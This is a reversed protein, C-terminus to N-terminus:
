ALGSLIERLDSKARSMGSQVTGLKKGTHKVIMEYSLGEFYFLELLTRKDPSLQLMAASILASMEADICADEPNIFCGPGQSLLLESIMGGPTEIEDSENSPIRLHTRVREDRFYNLFTNRTIKNILGLGLAINKEAYKHAAQCLRIGALGQLDASIVEDRKAYGRALRELDGSRVFEEVANLNPRLLPKTSIIIPLAATMSINDSLGLHLQKFHVGENVGIKVVQPNLFVKRGFCHRGIRM